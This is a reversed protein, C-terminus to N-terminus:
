LSRIADAPDLKLARRAPFISSFVAVLLTMLTINVYLETPLSTYIVSGLGLSELGDAVISLDIGHKGFYNVTLKSLFIGIPAAVLSIFVTELLIMIFLKAKNLGVSMLMGIEKKRELIAMLMTNIIGFSLALLVIGMFIYVMNGMIEQAYGLEPAVDAWSEVKDRHSINSLQSKVADTEELKNCLIAIEHYQNKTGTIKELDKAKVFVTSEDYMSSLSKFVGEVRFLSSVINGEIDQFTVIIKSKIKLNLRDALKKGVVIPNKKFKTFYTGEVILDSINTIEKENKSFVGTVQVGYSGSSNAAMGSVLVRKTYKKINPNSIISAEFKEFDNISYKLNQDESFKSHHIQVHSLYTNIAGNLRQDNLGITMAMVLLGSWIGLIISIIVISSRLKNRWVNRWAIKFLTKM